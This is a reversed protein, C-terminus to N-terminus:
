NLSYPIFGNESLLIRMANSNGPFGYKLISILLATLSGGNTYGCQLQIFPEQSNENFFTKFAQIQMKGVDKDIVITIHGRETVVKGGDINEKIEIFFNYGDPFNDIDIFNNGIFDGEFEEPYDNFRSIFNRLKRISIAGYFSFNITINDDLNKMQFSAFYENPEITINFRIRKKGLNTDMRFQNRNFFDGEPQTLIDCM